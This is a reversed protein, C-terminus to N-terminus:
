FGSIRSVPVRYALDCAFYSLTVSSSYVPTPSHLSTGVQHAGPASDGVSCGHGHAAGRPPEGRGPRGHLLGRCAAAAGAGAGREGLLAEGAAELYHAAGVVRPLLRRRRHRLSGHWPARLPHHGSSSTGGRREDGDGVAARLAVVRPCRSHPAHLLTSVLSSSFPIPSPSFFRSKDARRKAAHAFRSPLLLARTRTRAHPGPPKAPGHRWHVRPGLPRSTNPGLCYIVGRATPIRRSVYKPQAVHM